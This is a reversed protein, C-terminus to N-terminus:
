MLFFYDLPVTVVTKSENLGLPSDSFVLGYDGGHKNLTTEVQKYGKTGLGMEIPIQKKNAVRLIFDCQGGSKDYPHTISGTRRTVFERYYHLAAADELLMGRRSDVTGSIGVIDHFAARIAPSMFFYKAPNTTATVNSGHAPVKILLEAKVFADLINIVQSRSVGIMTALKSLPVVDCDTLVMILRKMAGITEPTFQNLEQMDITIIKDTMASIASYVQRNESESLTFPMTGTDLYRNISTRDYKSTWERDVVNKLALLREHVEEANKSDYLANILSKKLDKTPYKGNLLVQFEPFSLPYLKDVVARRGDVDADLQLHTASSGSCIIFVNPVRDFLFKLTRAWKPDVQIEDIFLFTPKTETEFSGNPLLREYDDILNSLDSGVKEVLEDISVYLLNIKEGVQHNLWLYLQAMVTTKGVGRLGPLVIWRRAGPAKALFDRAYKQLLIYVTRSPLSEGKANLTKLRMIENGRISQRQIYRTLLESM